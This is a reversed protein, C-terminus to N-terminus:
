DFSVEKASKGTQILELNADLSQKVMNMVAVDTYFATHPSILVNERSDLNWFEPYTMNQGTMNHNFVKTEDELVDLAAGAVKGSDLAEILAAEDILPGRSANVIYVGDNMKAFAAQDLM